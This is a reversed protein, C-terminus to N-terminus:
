ILLISQTLLQPLIKWVLWIQVQSEQLKLPNNKLKINNTLCSPQDFCNSIKCFSTIYWGFYSRFSFQESSVREIVFILKQLFAHSNTM